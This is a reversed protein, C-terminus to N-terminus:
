ESLKKLALGAKTKRVTFQDGADIGLKEVLEKSIIISGRKGVVVTNGKAPKAQGRGGKLPVIKGIEVLANLYATKLQAATKLGFKKIIDIQAEGAEVLKILGKSDIAKKKPM